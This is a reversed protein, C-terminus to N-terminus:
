EFNLLTLVPFRPSCSSTMDNSALVCFEVASSVDLALKAIVLDQPSGALFCLRDIRSESVGLTM